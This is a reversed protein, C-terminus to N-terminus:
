VDTGSFLCIFHQMKCIIDNIHEIINLLVVLAGFIHTPYQNIATRCYFFVKLGSNLIICKLKM